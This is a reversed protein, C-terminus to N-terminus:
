SFTNYTDANIKITYFSSFLTCTSINYTTIAVSYFEKTIKNSNIHSGQHSCFFANKRQFYVFTIYIFTFYIFLLVFKVNLPTKEPLSVHKYFLLYYYYITIYLKKNTIKHSMINKTNKESTKCSLYMNKNANQHEYLIKKYPFKDQIKSCLM